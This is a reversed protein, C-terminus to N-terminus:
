RSVKIKNKYKESTRVMLSLMNYWRIIVIKSGTYSTVGFLRPHKSLPLTEVGYNMRERRINDNGHDRPEAKRGNFLLLNVITAAHCAPM